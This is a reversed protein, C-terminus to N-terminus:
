SIGKKIKTKTKTKNKEEGKKHVIIIKTGKFANSVLQVHPQWIAM